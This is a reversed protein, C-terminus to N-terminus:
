EIKKWWAATWSFVAQNPVVAEKQQAQSDFSKSWKQNPEHRSYHLLKEGALKASSSLLSNLLALWEFALHHPFGGTTKRWNQPNLKQVGLM